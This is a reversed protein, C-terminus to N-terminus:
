NRSFGRWISNHMWVYPMNGVDRPPPARFGRELPHLTKWIPQVPRQQPWYLGPYSSESEASPEADPCGEVAFRVNEDGDDDGCLAVSAQTNIVIWGPRRPSFEQGLIKVNEAVVPVVNLGWTTGVILM